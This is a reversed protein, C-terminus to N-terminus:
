WGRRSLHMEEIKAIYGAEDIDELIKYADDLPCDISKGYPNEYVTHGPAAIVTDGYAVFASLKLNRRQFAQMLEWEQPRIKSQDLHDLIFGKKVLYPYIEKYSHEDLPNGAIDVMNLLKLELLPRLDTVQAIRAEFRKLNPLLQAIGDIDALGSSWSQIRYVKPRHGIDRLLDIDGCGIFSILILNPFIQMGYPASGGQSALIKLNHIEEVSFPPAHNLRHTLEDILYPNIPTM